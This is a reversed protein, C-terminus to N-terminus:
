QGSRDRALGAHARLAAAFDDLDAIGSVIAEVLRATVLDTYRHVILNRLGAARALRRSLEESVVGQRALLAFAAAPGEPVGLSEHTCAHVALDICAQVAQVLDFCIDNRRSEDADMAAADLPLKARLRSCHHEIAQSKRLVVDARAIARSSCARACFRRADWCRSWGTSCWRSCTAAPPLRCGRRSM